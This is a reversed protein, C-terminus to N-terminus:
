IRVGLGEHIRRLSINGHDQETANPKQVEVLAAVLWGAERDPVPLVHAESIYPLDMFYRELELISITYEHFQVWDSSARGKFFYDNGIRETYDGTKYFGEHDFAAM